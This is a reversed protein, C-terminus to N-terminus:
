IKINKASAWVLALIHDMPSPSNGKANKLLPCASQHSPEPHPAVNTLQATSLPGM